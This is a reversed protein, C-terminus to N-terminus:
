AHVRVACMTKLACTDCIAAAKIRVAKPTRQGVIGDFTELADHCAAVTGNTHTLSSTAPTSGMREVRIRRDPQPKM